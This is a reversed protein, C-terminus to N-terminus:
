VVREMVKLVLTLTHMTFMCVFGMPWSGTYYAIGIDSRSRIEVSEVGLKITQPTLDEVSYVFGRSLVYELFLRILAPGIESSHIVIGKFDGSELVTSIANPIKPLYRIM